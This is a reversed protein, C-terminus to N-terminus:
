IISDTPIPKFCTSSICTETMIHSSIIPKCITNSLVILPLRFPTITIIDIGLSTRYLTNLLNTFIVIVKTIIACVKQSCILRNLYTVLGKLSICLAYKNRPLTIYLRTHTPLPKFITFWVCAESIIHTYVVPKRLTETLIILPLCCPTIAVINASVTTGHLSMLHYIVMMIIKTIVTREIQM